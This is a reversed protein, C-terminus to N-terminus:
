AENNDEKRLFWTYFNQNDLFLDKAESIKQERMM